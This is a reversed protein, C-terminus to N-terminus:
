KAGATSIVQWKGNKVQYLTCVPHVLDGQTTFSIDGTVGAYHMKALASTIATPKLSNAQEMAKITMGTADYAYPSYPLLDINFRAKYKAVFAEGNPLSALAPGNEWAMAGEAAPGALKVFESDAVGGGGLFQANMGLQKMRKALMASQTDLGGFFVLDARVSKMHTLQASFDTAKDNTYQRDVITGGSARVAKEFEDAEGQGFSTRDDIIAIRKAKTVKVAYTGANGANQADTAIVRFVNGYGQQTISPNTASPTIMPINATNYLKSAPLTTGSNFHGIVAVVGQDVLQQAVQVGIRPDSQDDEAAVVFHVEQGGIVPHRSNAEDLALGVANVIDKGYAAGSGTLPVAVGITVTVPSAAYAAGHSMLCALAAASALAVRSKRFASGMNICYATHNKM